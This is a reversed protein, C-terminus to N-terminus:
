RAAFGTRQPNTITISMSNRLACMGIQRLDVDATQQKMDAMDMECIM